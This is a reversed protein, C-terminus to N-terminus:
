KRDIHEALRHLMHPLMSFSNVSELMPQGQIPTSMVVFDGLEM